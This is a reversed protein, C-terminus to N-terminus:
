KGLLLLCLAIAVVFSLAWLGTWKWFSRKQENQKDAEDVQSPLAKRREEYDQKLTARTMIVILPAAILFILTSTIREASWGTVYSLARSEYIVVQCILWIVGGVIGMMALAYIMLM